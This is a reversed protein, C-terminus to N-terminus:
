MKGTLVSGRSIPAVTWVAQEHGRLEYGFSFNEWIRATRESITDANIPLSYVGYMDWSGSVILGKQTTNLACINGTHGILTYMPPQAQDESFPYVNIVADQGGTV